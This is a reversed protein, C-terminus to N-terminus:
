KEEECLTDIAQVLVDFSKTDVKFSFCKPGCIIFTGRKEAIGSKLCTIIFNFDKGTKDILVSWYRKDEQSYRIPLNKVVYGNERLRKCTYSRTYLFNKIKKEEEM